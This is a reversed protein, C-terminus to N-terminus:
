IRPGCIGEYNMGKPLLEPLHLRKQAVANRTFLIGLAEVGSERGQALIKMQVIITYVVYNLHNSGSTATPPSPPLTAPPTISLSLTRFASQWREELTKGWNKKNEREVQTNRCILSQIHLGNLLWGIEPEQSSKSGRYAGLSSLHSAIAFGQSPLVFVPRCVETSRFVTTFSMICRLFSFGLSSPALNRILAGKSTQEPPEHHTITHTLPLVSLTKQTHKVSVQRTTQSQWQLLICCCICLTVAIWLFLFFLLVLSKM